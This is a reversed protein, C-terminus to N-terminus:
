GNDEADRALRAEIKELGADINKPFATMAGEVLKGAVEETKDL